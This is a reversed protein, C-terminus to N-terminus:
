LTVSQNLWGFSKCWVKLPTGKLCVSHFTRIEVVSEGEEMSVAHQVGDDLALVLERHTPQRRQPDEAGDRHRM